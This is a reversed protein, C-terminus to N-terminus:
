ARCSEQGWDDMDTILKGLPKSLQEASRGLAPNEHVPRDRIWVRIRAEPRQHHQSPRTHDHQHCQGALEDAEGGAIAGVVLRAHEENTILAQSKRCFILGVLDSEIRRAAAPISGSGM